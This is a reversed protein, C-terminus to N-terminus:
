GISMYSAAARNALTTPLWALLPSGHGQSWASSSTVLDDVYLFRGWALNNGM